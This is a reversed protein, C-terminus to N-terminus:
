QEAAEGILERLRNQALTYEPSKPYKGLLYQYLKKAGKEDNLSEERIIAATCLALSAMPHDSFDDSLKLLAQVAEGHNESAEYLIALMMLHQPKASVVQTKSISDRLIQVTGMLSRQGDSGSGARKRLEKAAKFFGNVRDEGSTLLVSFNLLSLDFAPNLEKEVGETFKTSISEIQRLYQMQKTSLKAAKAPSGGTLIFSREGSSVIERAGKLDEIVMRGSRVHLETGGMSAAVLFETGITACRGQPTEVIFPRNGSDETKHTLIIGKALQFSEKKSFVRRLLSGEMAFITDAKIRIKYHDARVLDIEGAAGTKVAYGPKIQDGSKLTGVYRGSHDYAVVIGKSLVVKPSIIGEFTANFAVICLVAAITSIAVTALRPQRVEFFYRASQQLNYLIDEISFAARKAKVESIAEISQFVKKDLDRSTQFKISGKLKGNFATLGELASKCKPCKQTHILLRRSEEQSLRRDIYEGIMRKFKGCKMM